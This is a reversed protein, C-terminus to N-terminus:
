ITMGPPSTGMLWGLAFSLIVVLGLLVFTINQAQQRECGSCKSPSM